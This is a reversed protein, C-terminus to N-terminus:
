RPDTRACIMRPTPGPAPRDDILHGTGAADLVIAMNAMVAALHHAGRKSGPDIDEGDWWAMLHRMAASYYVSAAVADRRWNLPGYKEAGDSLVDSLHLMASPPVVGMSPKTIGHLSKPNADPREM